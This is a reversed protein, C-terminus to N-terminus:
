SMKEVDEFGDINDETEVIKRTEISFALRGVEAFSDVDVKLVSSSSDVEPCFCFCAKFSSFMCPKDLVKWNKGSLRPYTLLTSWQNGPRIELIM